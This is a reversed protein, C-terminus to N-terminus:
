LFDIQIIIKSIFSIYLNTHVLNAELTWNFIHLVNKIQGQISHNLVVPVYNLKWFQIKELKKIPVRYTIIFHGNEMISSKKSRWKPNKSRNPRLTLFIWFPM